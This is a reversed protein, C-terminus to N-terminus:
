FIGWRTKELTERLLQIGKLFSLLDLPRRGSLSEKPKSFWSVIDEPEMIDKAIEIVEHILDLRERELPPPEVGEKEWRVVTRVSLGLIKALAEQSLMLANRISQITASVKPLQVASEKM